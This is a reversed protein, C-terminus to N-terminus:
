DDWLCGARLSMSEYMTMQLYVKLYLKLFCRPWSICFLVFVTNLWLWNMAVVRKKQEGKNKQEGTKEEM